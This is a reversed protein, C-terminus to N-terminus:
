PEDVDLVRMLAWPDLPKSLCALVPLGRARLSRQLAGLEEEELGSFLVAQRIRGADALESLLEVGSIDPLNIDCLLLDFPEGRRECESRAEGADLAPTLRFYGLRNLQMQTAILQFPHDEVVLISFKTDM